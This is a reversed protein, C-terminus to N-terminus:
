LSCVLIEINTDGFVEEIIPKVKDWDLRDLGCGIRPMAVKNTKMLEPHNLMLIKMSMLAKRLSNYTPKEFHRNKTVLNFVKDNVLLCTNNPSAVVNEPKERMINKIDFRKNFEVAIGAGMAYDASICQAYYYENEDVSFLDRKEEKIIM